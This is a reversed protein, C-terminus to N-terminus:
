EGLCDICTKCGVELSRWQLDKRRNSIEFLIIPFGEFYFLARSSCFPSAQLLCGVACPFAIDPKTGRDGDRGAPPTMEAIRGCCGTACVNCTLLGAWEPLYGGGFIFPLRAIYIPVKSSFYFILLFHFSFIPLLM